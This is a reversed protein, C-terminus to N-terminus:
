LFRYRERQTCIISGANGTDSAQAVEPLDPAVISLLPEGDAQKPFM